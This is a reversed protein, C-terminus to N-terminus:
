LLLRTGTGSQARLTVLLCLLCGHACEFLGLPPTLLGRLHHPLHAEGSRSLRTLLQSLGCLKTKRSRTLCSL